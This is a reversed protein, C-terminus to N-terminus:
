PTKEERREEQRERQGPKKGDWISQPLVTLFLSAALAISYLITEGVAHRHLNSWVQTAFCLTLFLYYYRQLGRRTKM